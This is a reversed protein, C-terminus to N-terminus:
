PPPIRESLRILHLHVLALPLRAAAHFERSHAWRGVYENVPAAPNLRVIERYLLGSEARQNVVIRDRTSWWIHLPVGSFAIARAWHLPSRAAYAAPDTAPTGGIEIRALRQLRLGNALRPFDYYRAAMNTDSDLASAAALLHPHRAVLLLTEQGGMSSGVAYIRKRDIRLWPLARTVYEPMRALDDIEGKWGWSYLTLRRGQGEPNVVAFPGFAPLGGWFRVNDRAPVGRGHPSIVLPISPHRHPGYWRPLIVYAPRRRGDNAPYTIRWVRVLEHHDDLLDRYYLDFARLRGYPDTRTLPALSGGGSSGSTVSVAAAGGAVALAAALAV